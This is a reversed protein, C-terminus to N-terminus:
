GLVDTQSTSGNSVMKAYIYDFGAQSPGAASYFDLPSCKPDDNLTSGDANVRRDITSNLATVARIQSPLGTIFRDMTTNAYSLSAEYKFPGFVDGRSGFLM